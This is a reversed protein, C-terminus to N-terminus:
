KLKVSVLLRTLVQWRMKGTKTVPNVEFFGIKVLTAGQQGGTVAEEEEEENRRKGGSIGPSPTFFKDMHPAALSTSDSFMVLSEDLKISM